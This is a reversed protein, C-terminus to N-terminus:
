LKIVFFLECGRIAWNYSLIGVELHAEQFPASEGWMGSGLIYKQNELPDGSRLVM